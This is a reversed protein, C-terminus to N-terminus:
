ALQAEKLALMLDHPNSAAETAAEITVIGDRVLNVLSQDFTQMGYFDGEAMVDPITATQEPSLIREVVRGTNILIEVTPVRGSGDARPVLRQSVVGRLSAALSVRAQLQMEPPYLDIMRNVTETADLTHLTSIVLHGTEAAQIAAEATLRDRIEGIFIVDPDQRVVARLAAEHSFTDEGLERQDVIAMRDEHVIEIPDEITIIHVPRHRNIWGIMSGITTTKGTGAPGTVLILGRSERALNAVAAPLMLEDFSPIETRVRRIAISVSGRQRFANVRFRGVGELTYGVDAENTERFAEARRESLLELAMAETEKPSLPPHNTRRLLGDIRMIPPEGAKIHLDSAGEEALLELFRTIISM